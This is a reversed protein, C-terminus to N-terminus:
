KFLKGLADTAKEINEASKVVAETVEPASKILKPISVLISM